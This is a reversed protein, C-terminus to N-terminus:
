TPERNDQSAFSHVTTTQVDFYKPNRYSHNGDFLETMGYTTIRGASLADWLYDSVEFRQTATASGVFDKAYFTMGYGGGGCHLGISEICDLLSDIFDWRTALDTGGAETWRAKFMLETFEGRKLKKRLRKNM